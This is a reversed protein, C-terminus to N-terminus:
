KKREDCETILQDHAPPLYKRVKKPIDQKLIYGEAIMQFLREGVVQDLEKDSDVAQGRDAADVIDGRYQTFDATIKGLALRNAANCPDVDVLDMANSLESRMKARAAAGGTNTKVPHSLSNDAIHTSGQDERLRFVPANKSVGIPQIYSRVLINPKSPVSAYPLSFWVLFNQLLFVSSIALIHRKFVM